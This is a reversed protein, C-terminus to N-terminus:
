RYLQQNGYPIPLEERNMWLYLRPSTRFLPSVGIQELGRLVLRHM